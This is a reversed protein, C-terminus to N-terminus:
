KWSWKVAFQGYIKTSLGGALPMQMTAPAVLGGALTRNERGKIPQLPENVQNTNKAYITFGVDEVIEGVRIDITEVWHEDAKHDATDKAYLQATVFSTALIGSQGTVSVRADSTGPFAGFDVAADGSYILADTGPEGQIGQSGTAGPEGQPGQPGTPGTAGTPGQSGTAGTPGQSGQSGTNGTLGTDGQEGQSGAPGTPGQPGQSGAPGTPGTPGQSGTEGTDGQDGKAGAPGFPGQTGVMVISVATPNTITLEHLGDDPTTVTVSYVRETIEISTLSSM